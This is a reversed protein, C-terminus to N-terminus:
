YGSFWEMLHTKLDRFHQPGFVRIKNRSEMWIESVEELLNEPQPYACVLSVKAEDGGMQRARVFAEFLKSKVDTKKAKISCSFAYLRYGQMGTVDFEFGTSKRSPVSSRIKVNQRIEHIGCEQSIAQLCSFVYNELWMGDFYNILYNALSQPDWAHIRADSDSRETDVLALAVQGLIAVSPSQKEAVELNHEIDVSLTTSAFSDQLFSLLSEASPFLRSPEFGTPFYFRDLYDKLQVPKTPKLCADNWKQIRQVSGPQSALKALMASVIPFAASTKQAYISRGHLALLEDLSLLCEEDSPLYTTGNAFRLTNSHPDLYSFTFPFYKKACWEKLFEYAHVAMSKMGGTYNLGVTGFGALNLKTLHEALDKHICFQDSPSKLEFFRFQEPKFQSRKILLEKLNNAYFSTEETHILNIVGDPESLLSAAVFVPLPNSGVLLFLQKSRCLM